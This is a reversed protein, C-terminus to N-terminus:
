EGKSNGIMHLVALYVFHLSWNVVARLML